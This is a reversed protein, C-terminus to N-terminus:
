YNDYIEAIEQLIDPALPGREVARINSAVEEVSRMGCVVSAVSGNSLAFRLALEARSEGTSRVRDFSRVTAVARDLQERTWQSRRGMRLIADDELADTLLGQALPERAFVAIGHSACHPFAVHALSQSLLNYAAQVSEVRTDKAAMICEAGHGEGPGATVGIARVLGEDRFAALHDFLESSQMAEAPVNHVQYLDIWDTRLRRLSETLFRRLTDRSPNIDPKLDFKTAILVDPRRHGLAQGIVAESHGAAGYSDATDIVTVGAGLAAHVTRISTHDDQTGRQGGFQLTGLTLRSIRWGRGELLLQRPRESPIANHANV